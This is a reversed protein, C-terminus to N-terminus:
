YLIASIGKSGLDIGIPGDVRNWAVKHAYCGYQIPYVGNHARPGTM